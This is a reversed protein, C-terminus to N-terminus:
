PGIGGRTPISISMRTLFIDWSPMSVVHSPIGEAIPQDHAQVVLGVKSGSAILIV